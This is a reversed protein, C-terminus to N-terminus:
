SSFKTKSEAIRAEYTAIVQQLPEKDARISHRHANCLPNCMM